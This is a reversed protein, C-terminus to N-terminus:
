KIFEAFEDYDKFESKIQQALTERTLGNKKLLYKIAEDPDINQFSCCPCLSSPTEYRFEYEEAQEDFWDRVDTEDEMDINEIENKDVHDEIFKKITDITIESIHSECFTHGNECEYMEADSLSLDRGAVEEGCISCIYSSTSSNSVFGVRVKM